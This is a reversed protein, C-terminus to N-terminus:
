AIRLRGRRAREASASDRFHVDRLATLAPERGLGYGAFLCDPVTFGVHGLPIDAIRRGPRDLLTLIALSAPAYAELAQVAFRLRLGTDVIATVVVVDRGQLPTDGARVLRARAEGAGFATVHVGECSSPVTLAAALDAALAAAEPLVPLLVVGGPHDAAIARALQGVREAVDHAPIAVPGPTTSM